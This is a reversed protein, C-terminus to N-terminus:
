IIIGKSALEARRKDIDKLKNDTSKKEEEKIEKQKEKAKSKLKQKETNEKPSPVTVIANINQQPFKKSYALAKEKTDFYIAITPYEESISVGKSPTAVDVAEREKKDDEFKVKSGLLIKSNDVLLSYDDVLQNGSNAKKANAEQTAGEGNGWYVTRRVPVKYTTDDSEKQKPLINKGSEIASKFLNGYGSSDMQENIISQIGGLEATKEVVTLTSTLTANVMRGYFDPDSLDKLKKPSLKTFSEISNSISKEINGIDQATVNLGTANNLASLGLDYVVSSDKQISSALNQIEGYVSKAENYVNEIEGKLSNFVGKIENELYGKIDGIGSYLSQQLDNLSALGLKGNEDFKVLNKPLLNEALKSFESLEPINLAEQIQDFSVGDDLKSQVDKLDKLFDPADFNM